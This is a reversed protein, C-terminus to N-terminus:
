SANNMIRQSVPKISRSRMAHRTPGQMAPRLSQRLDWCYAAELAPRGKVLLTCIHSAFLRFRDDNPFQDGLRNDISYLSGQRSFEPLSM